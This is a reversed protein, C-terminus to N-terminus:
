RRLPRRHWEPPTVTIQPPLGPPYETVPTPESRASWSRNFDRDAAPSVRHPPPAERRGVGPRQGTAPYYGGPVFPRTIYAPGQIQPSVHGPRYLGVDGYVVSGSADYGDIMVPVGARGPIVLVPQHDSLAPNTAAMLGAVTGLLVRAVATM